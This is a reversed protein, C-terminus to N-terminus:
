QNQPYYKFSETKKTDLETQAIASVYVVSDVLADVTLNKEFDLPMYLIEQKRKPVVTSNLALYVENTQEDTVLGEEILSTATTLPPLTTDKTFTALHQESEQIDTPRNKSCILLPVPENGTQIGPLQETAVVYKQPKIGKPPSTQIAM